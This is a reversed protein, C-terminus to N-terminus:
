FFTTIGNFELIYKLFKGNKANIDFLKLKIINEKEQPNNLGLTSFSQYASKSAEMYFKTLAHIIYNM